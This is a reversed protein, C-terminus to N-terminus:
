LRAAERPRATRHSALPVASENTEMVIPRISSPRERPVGSCSFRQQAAAIMELMQRTIDDAADLRQWGVLASQMKQRLDQNHALDQLLGILREETAESEELVQAAGTNAYAQANFWQHNDTAAPYPILLAPVRMAALEALSSAGARSIVVTAAGLALEVDDFFSHVVASLGLKAYAAKMAATDKKGTLHFWQWQPHLQSLAPLCRAIIQNVGCAGQSGGVVLIMPRSPDLGLEIRCNAPDRERFQSRVPTGSVRVPCHRIRAATAPFGVFAQDAFRSLWRNARGPIANSEHLFTRAGAVKGALIPAVSTFGGMAIVADPPHHRFLRKTILYSDRFGRVFAVAKGRTFGVAPLALIQYENTKSIGQQDVEKQSIILTVTTRARALKEAIALGPFLHGGTGGCAIAVSYRHSFSTM